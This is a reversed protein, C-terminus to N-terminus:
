FDKFADAREEQEKKLEKAMEAEAISGLTPQSLKTPEGDEPPSFAAAFTGYAGIRSSTPIKAKAPQTCFGYNAWSWRGGNGLEVHMLGLNAVVTAFSMAYYLVLHTGTWIHDLMARLCILVLSAVSMLRLAYNM